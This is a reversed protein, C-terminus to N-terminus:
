ARSRVEVDMYLIGCVFNTGNAQANTCFFKLVGDYAANSGAVPMKKWVGPTFTVNGSNDISLATVPKTKWTFDLPTGNTLTGGVGSVNPCAYLKHQAFECGNRTSTLAANDQPDFAFVPMQDATTFGAAAATPQLLNWKLRGGVFRYEDYLASLAAWETSNTVDVPYTAACVTGATNAAAFSVPLSFRRPKLALKGLSSPLKMSNSKASVTATAKAEAAKTDGKDTAKETFHGDNITCGIPLATKTSM